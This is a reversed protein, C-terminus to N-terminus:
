SLTWNAGRMFCTQLACSITRPAKSGLARESRSEKTAKQHKHLDAKAAKRWHSTDEPHEAKAEKLGSPVESISQGPQRSGSHLLKGTARMPLGM